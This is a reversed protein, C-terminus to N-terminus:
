FIPRICCVSDILPKLLKVTITMLLQSYKYIYKSIAPSCKILAKVQIAVDCLVYQNFTPIRSFACWMGGLGRALFGVKIM